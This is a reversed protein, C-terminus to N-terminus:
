RVCTQMLLGKFLLVGITIRDVSDRRNVDNTTLMMTDDDDDDDDDDDHANADADTDTAVDPVVKM